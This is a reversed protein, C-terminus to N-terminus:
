DELIPNDTDPEIGRSRVSVAKEAVKLPCGICTPPSAETQTELAGGTISLIPEPHDTPVTIFLFRDRYRISDHAFRNNTM